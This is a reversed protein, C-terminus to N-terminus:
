ADEPPMKRVLYGAGELIESAKEATVRDVTRREPEVPEPPGRRLDFRAMDIVGMERKCRATIDGEVPRRHRHPNEDSRWWRAANQIAWQPYMRLAALWDEAMMKRVSQPTDKEFHPDLLALVRAMIWAPAAPTTALEIAREMEARVEVRKM